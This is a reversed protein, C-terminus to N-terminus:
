FNVQFRAFLIEEDPRDGGGSAGGDFSSQEYALTTKLNRNLYWNLAVAWSQVGEVQSSPNAYTPFSKSDLNLESYRFGIEWAGWQGKALDFPKNPNVVGFTNNEGTLVYTAAIQWADHELTETDDNRRVDQKSSVYEGLIGLPGWYYTFQPSFRVRDGDAFTGTDDEGSGRYAFVRNQGPSRYSGLASATSSGEEKGYTAAIGFSLGKLADIDSNKLPSLFLRGAVDFDDGSDTVSSGGDVVGNFIGVAYDITGDGLLGSLQFGIDRNPALSNPHAREIFRLGAASQLRELGFPVKFKGARFIAADSFKYGYHADLLTTSTGEFAPTLRFEGKEGVTGQVNLRARRILFTDSSPDESTLFFRADTQVIGGLRIQFAKDPSTLSFGRAGAALAPQEALKTELAQVRAALNEDARATGTAFASAGVLATTTLIRKIHM